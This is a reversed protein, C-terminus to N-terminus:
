TSTGRVISPQVSQTYASARRSDCESRRDRGTIALGLRFKGLIMSM